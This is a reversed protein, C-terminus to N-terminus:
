DFYKSAQPLGYLCKLQKVIPPMIDGTAGMPRRLYIDKNEKLSPYLFATKIDHSVLDLDLTATVSFSLRLTDYTDPNLLNKLIDGRAV